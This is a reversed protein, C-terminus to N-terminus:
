LSGAQFFLVYPAPARALKVIAASQKSSWDRVMQSDPVVGKPFLSGQAYFKMIGTALGMPCARKCDGHHAVIASIIVEQNHEIDRLTVNSSKDSKFVNGSHDSVLNLGVKAAMKALPWFNLVRTLVYAYIPLKAFGHM